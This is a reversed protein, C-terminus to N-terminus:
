PGPPIPVGIHVDVLPDTPEPAERGPLAQQLDTRLWPVFSREEVRRIVRNVRLNIAYIYHRESRAFRSRNLIELSGLATLREYDRTVQQDTLLLTIAQMLRLGASRRARDSEHSGVVVFISFNEAFGRAGDELRTSGQNTGATRGEYPTSQKWVLMVGPLKALRGGNLDKEVQAGALEEYYVARQISPESDRDAGGTMDAVLETDLDLGDLPPNFRLVTGAAPLNHRAGGLNSTVDVPLSGNAPITWGGGQGHPESTAPNPLTKFLLDNAVQGGVSPLLYMNRPLLIASGTPNTVTVQGTARTGSLPSIQGLMARALAEIVDFDIPATM